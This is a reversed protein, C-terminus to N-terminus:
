RRGIVGRLSPTVHMAGRSMQSRVTLVSIELAAAIEDYRMGQLRHMLFIERVQPQLSDLAQQVVVDLENAEIRVDGENGRSWTALWIPKSSAIPRAQHEVNEHRRITVAQNRM